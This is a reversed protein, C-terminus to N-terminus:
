PNSPLAGTGDAESGPSGGLSLCRTNANGDDTSTDCFDAQDVFSSSTKNTSGHGQVGNVTYSQDVSAIASGFDAIETSIATSLAEAGVVLTIVLITLALILEASVLAGGEDLWLKRLM